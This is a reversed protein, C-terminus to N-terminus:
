WSRETIKAEVFYIFDEIYKFQRQGFKGKLNGRLIGDQIDSVSFTHAGIKYKFSSFFSRRLLPNSPPGM